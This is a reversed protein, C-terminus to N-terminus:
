QMTEGANADITQGTIAASLDSALFIVTRGCEEDTALRKLATANKWSQVQEENTTGREIALRAIGSRLSPGWMRGPVVTNVRVGDPGLEAALVKAAGLLAAKSSAYSGRGPFVRRTIQSGIFIVSGASSERLAPIAAQVVNLAGFLNVDFAMRWDDFDAHELHIGGGAGSM